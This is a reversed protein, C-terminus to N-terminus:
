KMYFRRLVWSAANFLVFNTARLLFVVKNINKNYIEPCDAKLRGDRRRAEPGKNNERPFSLAVKIKSAYVRAIVRAIYEKKKQTCSIEDGLKKYFSLLSSLVKEYHSEYKQMADISVSQGSRGIRYYYVADEMFVVTKVYPIPYLIYETDVYYLHEDILIPNNKLIESKITMSHMKIYLAGATEDFDYKRGYVVGKFPKDFEFKLSFSKVDDSGNDYAWLFNSSVMDSDTRKLLAVLHLLGDKDVWDDADVVKFYKGRAKRIGFNIGSGHGGNEKSYVFFTEPYKNVYEMAISLSGDTSGDNIVLVEIDKLIEDICFSELNVRLYKEANYAPVVISLYKM